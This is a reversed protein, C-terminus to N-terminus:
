VGSRRQIVPLGQDGKLAYTDVGPWSDFGSIQEPTAGLTAAAAGTSHRAASEDPSRQVQFMLATVDRLAQDINSPLTGALTSDDNPAGLGCPAAMPLAASMNEQDLNGLANSSRTWPKSAAGPPAAAPVHSQLASLLENEQNLDYAGTNTGADGSGTQPLNSPPSSAPPRLVSRSDVTLSYMLDGAPREESASRFASADLVRRSPSMPHHAPQHGSHAPPNSFPPPLEHTSSSASPSAVTQADDDAFAGYRHPFQFGSASSQSYSTAADIVSATEVPSVPLCPTLETSLAAQPYRGLSDAQGPLPMLSPAHLAKSTVNRSGSPQIEPLPSDLSLATPCRASPAGSVVDTPSLNPAMRPKKPPRAPTQEATQPEPPVVVATRALEKRKKLLQLQKKAVRMEPSAHDLSMLHHNLSSKWRFSRSCNPHHCNYPKENNHIRQHCKLNYKRDFKKDCGDINCTYLTKSTAM